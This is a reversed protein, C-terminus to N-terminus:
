LKELPAHRLVLWMVQDGFDVQAIFVDEGLGHLIAGALIQALGECEGFELTGDGGVLLPPHHGACANAVGRRPPRVVLVCAGKGETPTDDALCRKGM